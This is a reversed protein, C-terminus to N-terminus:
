FVGKKIKEPLLGVIEDIIQKLNQTLQKKQGPTLDGTISETLDHLLAMKLVRETNLGKGDSFLM